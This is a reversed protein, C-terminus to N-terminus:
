SDFFGPPRKSIAEKLIRGREDIDAQENDIAVEIARLERDLAEINRRIANVDDSIQADTVGPQRLRLDANGAISRVQTAIEYAPSTTVSQYRPPAAVKATDFIAKRGDTCAASVDNWYERLRNLSVKTRQLNDSRYEVVSRLDKVVQRLRLDEAHNIQRSVVAWAVGAAFAAALAGIIAAILGQYRNLWFEICGNADGIKLNTRAAPDSCALGAQVIGYGIAAAAILTAVFAFLKLYKM